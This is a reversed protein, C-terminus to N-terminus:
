IYRTPRSQGSCLSWTVERRNSQRGRIWLTGLNGTVSVFSVSDMSLTDNLVATNQGPITIWRWEMDHRPPTVVSFVHDSGYLSSPSANYWSRILARTVVGRANESRNDRQWQLCFPLLQRIRIIDYTHRIRIIHRPIIYVM